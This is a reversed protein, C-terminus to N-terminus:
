PPSVAAPAPRVSLRHREHPPHRLRRVLTRGPLGKDAPRPPPRARSTPGSRPVYLQGDKRVSRLTAQPEDNVAVQVLEFVEPSAANLGEFSPFYWEAASTPDALLERYADLDSVCSFRLVPALEKDGPQIGMVNVVADRREYVKVWTATSPKVKDDNFENFAGVITTAM